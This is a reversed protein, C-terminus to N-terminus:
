PMVFGLISPAKPGYVLVTILRYLLISVAVFALLGIFYKSTFAGIITRRLDDIGVTDFDNGESSSPVEDADDPEDWDPDTNERDHIRKETEHIIKLAREADVPKVMIRPFTPLSPPLDGIAGQLYENKIEVFINRCELASKILYAKPLSDAIFVERLKEM